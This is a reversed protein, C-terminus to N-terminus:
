DDRDKIGELKGEIIMTCDLRGLSGESEFEKERMECEKDEIEARM